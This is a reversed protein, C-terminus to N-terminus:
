SPLVCQDHRLRASSSSTLLKVTRRLSFALGKKVDLGAYLSLEEGLMGFHSEV